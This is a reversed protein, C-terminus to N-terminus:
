GIVFMLKIDMEEEPDPTPGIPYPLNKSYLYEFIVNYSMDIPLFERKPKRKPKTLTPAPRSPIESTKKTKTCTQANPSDNNIRKDGRSLPLSEFVSKISPYIMLSHQTIDHLENIRQQDTAIAGFSDLTKYDVSNNEWLITYNAELIGVRAVLDVLTSKLEDIKEQLTRSM